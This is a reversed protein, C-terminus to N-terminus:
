FTKTQTEYFVYSFSLGILVGLLLLAFSISFFPIHPAAMRLFVEAFRMGAIWFLIAVCASISWVAINRQRLLRGALAGVLLFFIVSASWWGFPVLAFADMMVGVLLLELLFPFVVAIGVIFGVLLSWPMSVSLVILFLVLLSRYIIFM